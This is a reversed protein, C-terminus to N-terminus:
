NRTEKPPSQLLRIAVAIQRQFILAGALTLGASQRGMVLVLRTIEPDVTARVEVEGLAHPEDMM